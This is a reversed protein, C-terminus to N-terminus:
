KTHEIEEIEKEVEGDGKVDLAPNLIQMVRIADAITNEMSSKGYADVQAFNQSSHRLGAPGGICGNVCAMGEIFNEKLIGKQKKFLATKCEAIGNCSVANLKFQEESVGQEKLAETVAEALGGCRAFIRGYFSANDLEAKHMTTVDIGRASFMAQMEEFTITYDVYKGADTYKTEAKKAICPGIFVVHCNEDTEHLWKAMQAMPSLNHSVHEKLSPFHRNIYNVFAPCCSSTLFGKEVLEQAELWAVMDAGWAAEVVAHFGLAKIGAVVQEPVANPYQSAMSPAVVAYVHYDRNLNSDRILSIVKTIDSKDTIAGFPCQYM